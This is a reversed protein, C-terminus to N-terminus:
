KEPNEQTWQEVAQQLAKRYAAPRSPDNMQERYFDVDEPNKMLARLVAEKILKLAAQNM